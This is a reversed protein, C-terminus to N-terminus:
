PKKMEQMSELYTYTFAMRTCLGGRPTLEQFKKSSVISSM